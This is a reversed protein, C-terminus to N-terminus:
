TWFHCNSIEHKDCESHAQGLDAAQLETTQYNDNTYKNKLCQKAKENSSNKM